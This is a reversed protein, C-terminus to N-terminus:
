RYVYPIHLVLHTVYFVADWCLIYLPLSLLWYTFGREGIDNYMRGIGYRESTMAFGQIVPSGFVLSIIGLKFDHKVISRAVGRNWFRAVFGASLLYLVIAFAGSIVSRLLWTSLM